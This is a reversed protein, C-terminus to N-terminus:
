GVMEYDEVPCQVMLLNAFHGNRFYSHNLDVTEDNFLLDGSPSKMNIM